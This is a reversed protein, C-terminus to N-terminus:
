SVNMINLNWQLLIQSSAPITKGVPDIDLDHSMQCNMISDVRIALLTPTVMHCLTATCEDTVWLHQVFSQQSVDCFYM